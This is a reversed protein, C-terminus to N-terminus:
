KRGWILGYRTHHPGLGLKPLALAAVSGRALVKGVAERLSGAEARTSGDRGADSSRPVVRARRSTEGKAM